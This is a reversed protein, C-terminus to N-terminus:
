HVLRVVSQLRVARVQCPVDVLEVRLGRVAQAQVLLFCCRYLLLILRHLLQLSQLVVTLLVTRQPFASTSFPQLRPCLLPYCTAMDRLDQIKVLSQVEAAVLLQALVGLLVELAEPLAEQLVEQLVVAQEQFDVVVVLGM